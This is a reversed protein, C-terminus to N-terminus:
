APNRAEVYCEGKLGEGLHYRASGSVMDFNTAGKGISYRCAFWHVGKGGRNHDAQVDNPGVFDLHKPKEGPICRFSWSWDNPKPDVVCMTYVVRYDCSNRFAGFTGPTKDVSLCKSADAIQVKGVRKTPAAGAPSTTPIAPGRTPDVASATATRAAGTAPIAAPRVAGIAPSSSPATPVSNPSSSGRWNLAYQRSSKFYDVNMQCGQRDYTPMPACETEWMSIVRSLLPACSAPPKDLYCWPVQGGIREGGPADVKLIASTKMDLATLFEGCFGYVGKHCPQRSLAIAEEYQRSNVLARVRAKLNNNSLGEEIQTVNKCSEPSLGSACVERYLPLAAAYNKANVYARAQALKGNLMTIKAPDVGRSKLISVANCAERIGDNCLAQFEAIAAQPNTGALQKANNFRAVQAPTAAILVLGAFLAIIGSLKM